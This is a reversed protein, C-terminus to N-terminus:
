WPRDNKPCTKRRYRFRPCSTGSSGTYKQYAMKVSRAVAYTYRRPRIDRIPNELNIGSSRSRPLTGLEVIQRSLNTRKAADLHRSRTAPAPTLLDNRRVYIAQSPPPTSAGQRLRLHHQDEQLTCGNRDSSDSQYGVASPMRGM